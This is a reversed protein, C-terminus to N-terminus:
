LIVEGHRTVHCSINVAVPLGAIHTAFTEIHVGLATTKGGLGQPGINTENLLQLMEKELTEIHPLPSQVGLPRLLAKKALMASLEFDGGIGVGVIIPPCPNPGAQTVTELICHKIGDIGDSPTLMFLKSMNESGFGKPMLAIKLRDGAVIDFHIIAPTNDKTNTRLLPDKVVSNRLFGDKYGQRVGENIADKLTGGVIHVDQGMEVFVVAMGTDQCIPMMERKAIDANDLLQNLISVGIESCETGCAQQLCTYIDDNLICTSTICLQKLAQIIEKTQIDRM